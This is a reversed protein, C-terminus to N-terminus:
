RRSQCWGAPRGPALREAMKGDTFLTGEQEAPTASSSSSSQLPIPIHISIPIPLPSALLRSHSISWPKRGDRHSQGHGQGWEHGGKGM